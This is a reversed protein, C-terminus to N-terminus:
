GINRRIIHMRDCYFSSNHGHFADLMNDCHSHQGKCAGAKKGSSGRQTEIFVGAAIGNGDAKIAVRAGPVIATKRRM